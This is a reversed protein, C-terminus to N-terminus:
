DSDIHDFKSQLKSTFMALRGPRAALMKASGLAASAESGPESRTESREEASKLAKKRRDPAPCNAGIHGYEWCNFCQRAEAQGSKGPAAPPSPPAGYRTGPNGGGKQKGKGKQGKGGKGKQGKGKFAALQGPSDQEDGWAADPYWDEPAGADIWALYEAHTAEADALYSLDM